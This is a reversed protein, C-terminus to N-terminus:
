RARRLSPSLSHLEKMHNILYNAEYGGKTFRLLFAGDVERAAQSNGSAEGTEGKREGFTAILGVKMLLFM